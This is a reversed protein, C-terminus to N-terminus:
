SPASLELSELSKAHLVSFQCMYKITYEFNVTVSLTFCKLQSFLYMRLTKSSFCQGKVAAYKSVGEFLKKLNQKYGYHESERGWSLITLDEKGKRPKLVRGRRM